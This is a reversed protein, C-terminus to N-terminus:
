VTCRYFRDIEAGLYFIHGSPKHLGASIDGALTYKRLTKRCIGLIKCTEGVSYRRDKEVCISGSLM